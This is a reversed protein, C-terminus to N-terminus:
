RSEESVEELPYAGEEDHVENGNLPPNFVCIMRMGTKTRLVHKENGDLAYLTGPALAHTKGTTLDALEGEGEICYVAEVHHRYWMFTETEPLIRTDHFSFGMGDKKLLIRRSSWNEASVENDTGTIEELKRVIM